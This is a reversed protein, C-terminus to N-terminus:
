YRCAYEKASSIFFSHSCSELSERFSWHCTHRQEGHIQVNLPPLVAYLALIIQSCHPQCIVKPLPLQPPAEPETVAMLLTVVRKAESLTPRRTVFPIKVIRPDSKSLPSAEAEYLVAENSGPAAVFIRTATSLQSKWTRLTDHIDQRLAAQLIRCM